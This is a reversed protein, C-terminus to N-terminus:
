WSGRCEGDGMDSTRGTLYEGDADDAAITGADDLCSKTRTTVTIVSDVRVMPMISAKLMAVTSVPMNMRMVDPEHINRRDHFYVVFLRM